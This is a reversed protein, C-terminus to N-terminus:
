VDADIAAGFGEDGTAIAGGANTVDVSSHARVYIGSGVDSVANVFSDAIHADTMDKFINVQFNVGIGVSLGSGDPVSFSFTTALDILTEDTSAIVALGHIDATSHTGDTDTAWQD